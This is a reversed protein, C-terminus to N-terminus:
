WCSKINMKWVRQRMRAMTATAWRCPPATKERMITMKVQYTAGGPLFCSSSNQNVFVGPECEEGRENISGHDEVAVSLADIGGAIVRFHLGLGLIISWLLVALLGVVGRRLRLRIVIIAGLGGWM